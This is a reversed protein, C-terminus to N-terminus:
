KGHEGDATHRKIESVIAQEVEPSTNALPVIGSAYGLVEYRGSKQRLYYITRTLPMPLPLREVFVPSKEVSGKLLEDIHMAVCMRGSSSPCEVAGRETTGIVILDARGALSGRSQKALIDRTSAVVAKGNAEDLRRVPRQTRDISAALQWPVDLAVLVGPLQPHARTVSSLILIVSQNATLQRLEPISPNDISSAIRLEGAQGGGKLWQTALARILVEPRRTRSKSTLQVSVLTDTVSVIRCIVIAEATSLALEEREAMTLWRLDENEVRASAWRACVFLTFAAAAAIAVKRVRISHFKGELM